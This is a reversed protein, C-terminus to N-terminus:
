FKRVFHKARDADPHKELTWIQEAMPKVVDFGAEIMRRRARRLLRLREDHAIPAVAARDLAADDIQKTNLFVMTHGPVCAVPTFYDALLEMQIAIWPLRWFLYDQQVVLSQGPILSPFFVRSMTDMNQVTKSADMVLIEIPGNEWSQTEIQGPYLSTRETWPTLLDIALDLINSGDFPAIGQAYLIHAKVEENARFRDYAHILGTHGAHQHGAALRATSGGAFCGLDVVAGDGQMWESTAWFYFQQEEPALMTPVTSAQMLLAPDLAKWPTDKFIAPDTM